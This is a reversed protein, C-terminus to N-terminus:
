FTVILDLIFQLLYTTVKRDNKQLCISYVRLPSTPMKVTVDGSFLVHYVFPGNVGAVISDEHFSICNIGHVNDEQLLVRSMALSRLHYLSM